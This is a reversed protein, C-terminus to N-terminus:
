RAEGTSDGTTEGPRRGAAREVLDALREDGDRAGSVAASAAAAAAMAALRHAGDGDTLLDRLPGRVWDATVDADDVIMASGAAVAGAANLRQEGNGIPLPVYVAPLGVATTECVTGAGARCLVLDAAAYALDMRDTYELVRYVAGEPLGSPQVAKGAGTLHLVQPALGRNPGSSVPALLQPAGEVVATNLRLAGLSGGTVLLTPADPHLEFAARAEARRAARDLRTVETRMPLGTLVGNGGRGRLDTGPFTTAVHETLRAGLRNAIGARHNAEHVVVPVGLKRAALYAPVAVYGGVGVVVDARPAGVVEGAKVIAREAARVASLLRGPLRLLATSPKRPLPVRPVVALEYGRAPVLRAELGEATGLVLVATAPDRRRLCDALALMPSVHGTTGGGALLVAM